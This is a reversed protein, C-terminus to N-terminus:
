TRPMGIAVIRGTAKKVALIAAQETEANVFVKSKRVAGSGYKTWVNVIM